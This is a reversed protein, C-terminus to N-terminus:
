ASEPYQSYGDWSRLEQKFEQEGWQVMRQVQDNQDDALGGKVACWVEAQVKFANYEQEISSPRYWLAHMAEHALHPAVVEPPRSLLSHCLTIRNTMKDFLAFCHRNELEDPAAFAVQTGLEALTHILKRGSSAKALNILADRLMSKEVGNGMTDIKSVIESLEFQVNTGHTRGASNLDARLSISAAVDYQHLKIDLFRHRDQSQHTVATVFIGASRSFEALGCEIRQDWEMVNDLKAKADRLRNQADTVAGWEFSCDPEVYDGEGDYYGGAECSRLSSEAAALEQEANAVESQWFTKREALWTRTQDIESEMRAFANGCLQDFSVFASKLEALVETSKLYVNNKM